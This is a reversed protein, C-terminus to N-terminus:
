TFKRGSLADRVEGCFHCVVRPDYGDFKWSHGRGDVRQSKPCVESVARESM